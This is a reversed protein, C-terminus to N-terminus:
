SLQRIVMELLFSMGGSYTFDVLSDCVDRYEGCDVVASFPRQTPEPKKIAVMKQDTDRERFTPRISQM